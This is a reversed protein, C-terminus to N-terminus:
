WHGTHEPADGRRLVRGAHWWPVWAALAAGGATVAGVLVCRVLDYGSVAARDSLGGVVAGALACVGIASVAATRVRGRAATRVRGRAAPWRAAAWWALVALGLLSSAYMLVNYLLHPGAVPISLVPWARVAAGGTQTFADWAMHTAAGVALAAATLAAERVGPRPAPGPDHGVLAWLPTRVAYTYVALALAGLLVDAGLGLPSHTFASALPLPLPLYYPLDPAVAGAVLAPLPLRTRALPLVAAAHAPTFPM